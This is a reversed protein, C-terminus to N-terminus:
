SRLEKEHEAKREERKMELFKEATLGNGKGIGLFPCSYKKESVKEEIPIITIIKDAERVLVKGSNYITTLYAPVAEINMVRESM